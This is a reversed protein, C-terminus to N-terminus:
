QYHHRCTCIFQTLVLVHVTCVQNFQVRGNPEDSAQIVIETTNPSGVAIGVTSFIEIIFTENGEPINDNVISLSGSADSM